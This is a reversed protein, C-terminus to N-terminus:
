LQLETFLMMPMSLKTNKLANHKPLSKKIITENLEITGLTRTM